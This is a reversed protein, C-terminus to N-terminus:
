GAHDRNWPTIQPSGLRCHPAGFYTKPHVALFKQMIVKDTGRSNLQSEVVLHM